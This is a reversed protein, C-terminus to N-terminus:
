KLLKKFDNKINEFEPTLILKITPGNNTTYGKEIVTFLREMLALLNQNNAEFLLKDSIEVKANPTIWLFKETEDHALIMWADDDEIRVALVQTGVKPIQLFSQKGTLIPRLRVDVYEQSDEDILVCTAKDEDVTKVTAINSVQPGFRAALDQLGKRIQEETAM